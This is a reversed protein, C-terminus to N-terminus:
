KEEEEENEKEEWKEASEGESVVPVGVTGTTHSKSIANFMSTSGVPGGGHASVSGYSSNRRQRRIVFEARSDSPSQPLSGTRAHSGGALPIPSLWAVDTESLSIEGASTRSNEESPSRGQTPNHTSDIPHNHEASTDLKPSEEQQYM